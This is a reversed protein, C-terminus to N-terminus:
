DKHSCKNGPQIIFDEREAVGMSFQLDRFPSYLDGENGKVDVLGDPKM